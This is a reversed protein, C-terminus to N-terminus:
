KRLEATVFVRKDYTKSLPVWRGACTILTLTSISKSSKSESPFIRDKPVNDADYTDIKTVVFSIVDGGLTTVNVEDGIKVEPLRWFAGPLGIGDNRHGDIIANGPDGPKAGYIYWGVDNYISPAGINGQSTIGVRQVAADVGISPISLRSPNGSDTRDSKLSLATEESWDENPAFIAAHALARVFIIGAILMVGM